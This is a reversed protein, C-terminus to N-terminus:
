PSLTMNQEPLRLSLVAGAKDVLWWLFTGPEQLSLMEANLREQDSTCRHNPTTANSDFPFIQPALLEADSKDVAFVAISGFCSLMRNWSNAAAPVSPTPKLANGFMALHRTSAILGIDSKSTDDTISTVTENDILNDLGNIYLAVSHGQNGEKDRIREAAHKLSTVLLSGLLIGNQHFTNQPIRLLVVKKSRICGALDLSNASPSLINRIRPESLAPAM